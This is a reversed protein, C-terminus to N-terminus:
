VGCLSLPSLVRQSATAGRGRQKVCRTAATREGKRTVDNAERVSRAEVFDFLGWECPVFLKSSDRFFPLFVVHRSPEDLGLPGRGYGDSRPNDTNYEPLFERWLCARHQAQKLTQRQVHLRKGKRSDDPGRRPTRRDGRSLSRRPAIADERRRRVEGEGKRARRRTSARSSIACCGPNGEGRGEGKGGQFSPSIGKPKL